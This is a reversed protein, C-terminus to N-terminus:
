SARRQCKLCQRSGTSPVIYADTLDHGRDCFSKSANLATPGAGRLVNERFTVPELHDPNACARNRCLHDLVLGEAVPGVFHEYAWRHVRVSRGDIKFRVYGTTKDAGSIVWCGNDDITRRALLRDLPTLGRLNSPRGALPDGHRRWRSYHPKCWGRCFHRADCGAIACTRGYAVSM